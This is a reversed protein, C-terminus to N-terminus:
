YYNGFCFDYGGEKRIYIPNINKEKITFIHTNSPKYDKKSFLKLNTLYSQKLFIQYLDVNEFINLHNIQSLSKIFLDENILDILDDINSDDIQFKEKNQSDTLYNIIKDFKKDFTYNNNITFYLITYFIM